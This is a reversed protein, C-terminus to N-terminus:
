SSDFGLCLGSGKHAEPGSPMPPFEKIVLMRGAGCVPCVRTPTVSSPRERPERPEESSEPEAAAGSGLLRRCLALREHRHRNALLGSYRIRVFGSPLVHFLLRRIFELATLTMVRKRNGRAYDKYRFRVLGDAVDLLRANSIAVRHTYRALYKLVM